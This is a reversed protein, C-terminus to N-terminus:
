NQFASSSQGSLIDPPLTPSASRVFEPSLNTAPINGPSLLDDLTRSAVRFSDFWTLTLSGTGAVLVFGGVAAPNQVVAHGLFSLGAFLSVFGHYISNTVL